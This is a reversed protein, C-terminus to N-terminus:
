SLWCPYKNETLRNMTMPLSAWWLPPLNWFGSQIMRSLCDNTYFSFFFLPSLVCGQPAGISTSVPKSLLNYVKIV